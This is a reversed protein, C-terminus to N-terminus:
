CTSPRAKPSPSRRPWTRRARRLRLHRAPRRDAPRGPAARPLRHDRRVAAARAEADGYDEPLRYVYDAPAVCYEAYGGDADWGTYTSRPCLNEAGRRCYRCTGCTGRLWAVGVRDGLASAPSARRGTEVVEGVIEHGPVTHPQHPPLDGEALHLDTRCVGCARVRLLLEGPAPEPVPRDSRRIPSGPTLVAWAKM